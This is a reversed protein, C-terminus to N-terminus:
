GLAEELKKVAAKRADVASISDNVLYKYAEAVPNGQKESPDPCPYVSIHTSDGTIFITVSIDKKTAAREILTNLDVKPKTPETGPIERDWCAMCRRTGGEVLEPLRESCRAYEEYGYDDPCRNCGGIFQTGVEEPHEKKLKERFTM